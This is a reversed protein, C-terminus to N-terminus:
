RKPKSNFYYCLSFMFYHPITNYKQEKTGSTTIFREISSVKHFLDFAQLKATLAGNLLTKALSANTLLYTRNLATYKYGSRSYISADYSLQIKFPLDCTGLIGYHWTRSTYSLNSLGKCSSRTLTFSAMAQIFFDNHRYSLKADDSISVENIKHKEISSEDEGTLNYQRSMSLHIDNEARLRKNKLLARGVNFDNNSYWSGNVNCPIFTYAGTSQNYIYAYNIENFVFQSQSAVYINLEKASEDHSYFFQYDYMSQKKLNKNSKRIALLNTDDYQRFLSLADPKVYSNYKNYFEIHDRKGNWRIRFEPNPDVYHKVKSTDTINDSYHLRQQLLNLKFGLNAYLKSHKYILNLGPVYSKNFTSSFYSNDSNRNRSYKRDTKSYDQAYKATFELAINQHLNLDYTGQGSFNYGSKKNKDNSNYLQSNVVDSSSYYLMQNTGATNHNNNYGINAFIKVNDGWPLEKSWTFEQRIRLNNQTNDLSKNSFNILNDMLRKASLLQLCSDLLAESNDFYSMDTSFNAYKELMNDETHNYNVYTRSRLWLPRNITVENMLDVSGDKVKSHSLERSYEDGSSNYTINNGIVDKKIKNLGGTLQIRDYVNNNPNGFQGAWTVENTNRINKPSSTDDFNGKTGPNRTKNVNNFKGFILSYYNPGQLTTFFRALKRGKTGVGAEINGFNSTAYEKKLTVDMVYDNPTGATNTPEYINKAKEFLKLEKITYYPLNETISKNKGHFVDKGNLTIYDVKRGNIKIEGDKNIQAGPMQRILDDLMSGNPLNFADANYVLTDKKHFIRIKTAKVEVEDLYKEWKNNKRKLQFLGIDVSGRRISNKSVTCHIYGTQYMQNEAKIIYESPVAPINFHFVSLQTIKDPHIIEVTTTDIVTSDKTMLSLKTGEIYLKTFSDIVQGSIGMTNQKKQSMAVTCIMCLCLAFIIRKM